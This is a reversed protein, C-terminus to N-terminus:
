GPRWADPIHEIEAEGGRVRVGIADFRYITGPRGKEYIWRRAAGAVGRRKGRRIPDLPGGGTATSRTKVEVFAVVDDRRAVLDIELPGARYNRDIVEWGRAELHAAALAEGRRGLDHRKM